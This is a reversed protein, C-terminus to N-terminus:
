GELEGIADLHDNLDDLLSQAEYRRDGRARAKYGELFDRLENNLWYKLESIGGEDISDLAKSAREITRESSIGYSDARLGIDIATRLEDASYGENDGGTVLEANDALTFLRSEFPTLEAKAAGVWQLFESQSLGAYGLFNRDLM